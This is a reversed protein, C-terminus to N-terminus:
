FLGVAVIKDHVMYTGKGNGDMVCTTVVCCLMVNWIRHYKWGFFFIMKWVTATSLTSSAAPDANERIDMRKM